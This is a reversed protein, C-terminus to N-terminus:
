NRVLKARLVKGNEDVIKLAYAGPALAELDVIVTSGRIDRRTYVVGGRVDAIVLAANRLPYGAIVTVIGETPNPYIRLDTQSTPSNIGELVVAQCNSTDTCGSLTVIVAYSGSQTVSFIQGTEGPLESFGDCDIWQYSAGSANATLDSGNLSTSADVNNVTLDLVVISDCGAVSTFSHPYFGDSTYSTGNYMYSQCATHSLTDRSNLITLELTVVSDCGVANTFTQSHFGTSTYVTGNLDYDDCAAEVLTDFSSHLISVELTVVSDCGIANTFTDLYVGTATYTHSNFLFSDCSTHVQTSFTAHNVTLTINVISDCGSPGTLVTSSFGSGYQTNGAFAFSDCATITQNNYAPAGCNNQDLKQLFADLGSSTLNFVGNSGPDFDAAGEFKGTTYVSGTGNLKLSAGSSFGQSRAINRAWRFSGAPDLKVIFANNNTGPTTLNFISAGPDFDSAGLFEGSVYSNGTNDTALSLGAEFGTGGMGKAWILNGSGDFKSVYVDLDGASILNNVGAGPNFDVTGTFAGTVILNGSPDIAASSGLDLDPGGFANAWVHNGSPDFKSVFIDLAGASTLTTVGPGPDFDVSGDFYGTIYINNSADAAISRVENYQGDGIGKAWVFGGAADLKVIFVDGAIGVLNSTGPGPDFDYSDGYLFGTILLNGAADVAISSPFTYGYIDTGAFVRAWALNGSADLKVIFPDVALATFNLVGPGPDLDITGGFYGTLYVNGAADTTTAFSYDDTAGGISRAWLLNGSADTKTLFVDNGGNSVLNTVSPGPDFDCTGGFQGSVFVNGMGDIALSTGDEIGAGSTKKSWVHNVSQAASPVIGLLLSLCLVMIGTEAKRTLEFNSGPRRPWKNVSSKM